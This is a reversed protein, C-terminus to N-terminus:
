PAPEITFTVSARGIEQGSMDRLIAVFQTQGSPFRKAAFGAPIRLTQHKRLTVARPKLLIEVTGDSKSVRLEGIVRWDTAQFNRLTAVFELRGTAPIVLPTLPDLRVFEGLVAANSATRTETSFATTERQNSAFTKPDIFDDETEQPQLSARAELTAASAVAAPATYPRQASWGLSLLALATLGLIGWEAITRMRKM